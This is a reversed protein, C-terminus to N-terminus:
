RPGGASVVDLYVRARQVLLAVLVFYANLLLAMWWEFADEMTDYGDALLADLVVSVVGVVLLLGLLRMMWGYFRHWRADGDRRALERVCRTFMVQAIFTFAFALVVGIRRLLRFGDGVEGLALTYLVLSLAAVGGVVPMARGTAVGLQRCWRQLAWWLTGTLLAAPIMGLKFVYKAPQGRGTASISTCSDWYPVCWPVQEFGAALLFSIHTTLFPLLAAGWALWALPVGAGPRADTHSLM